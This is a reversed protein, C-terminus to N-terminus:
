LGGGAAYVVALGWSVGTVAGSIFWVALRMMEWREMM